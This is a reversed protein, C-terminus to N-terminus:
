PGQQGTLPVLLRVVLRKQLPVFVHVLHPSDSMLPVQRLGDGLRGPLPPDDNVRVLAFQLPANCMGLWPRNLDLRFPLLLDHCLNFLIKSIGQESFIQHKNRIWAKEYITSARSIM